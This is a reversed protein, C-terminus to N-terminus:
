EDVLVFDDERFLVTYGDTHVMLRGGFMETNYIKGKTIGLWSDNRIAKAKM